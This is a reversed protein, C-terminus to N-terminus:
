QLSKLAGRGQSQNFHLHIRFKPREHSVIIDNRLYIFTPHSVGHSISVSPKIDWECPSELIRKSLRIFGIGGISVQAMVSTYCVELTPVSM